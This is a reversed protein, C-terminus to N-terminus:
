RTLSGTEDRMWCARWGTVGNMWSEINARWASKDFSTDGTWRRADTRNFKHSKHNQGASYFPGRLLASWNCRVRRKAVTVNSHLWSNGLKIAWILFRASMNVTPLHLLIECFTLLYNKKTNKSFYFIFIIIWM